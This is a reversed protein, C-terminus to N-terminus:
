DAGSYFGGFYYTDPLGTYDGARNYNYSVQGVEM